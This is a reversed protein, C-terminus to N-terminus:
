TDPSRESVLKAYRCEEASGAREDWWTRMWKADVFCRTSPWNQSQAKRKWKWCWTTSSIYNRFCLSCGSGLLLSCGQLWTRMHRWFFAKSLFLPRKKKQCTHSLVTFSLLCATWGTRRLAASVLLGAEDAQVNGLLNVVWLMFNTTLMGKHWNGMCGSADGYSMLYPTIKSIHTQKRNTKCWAQYNLTLWDWKQELNDLQLCPLVLQIVSAAWSRGFGLHVVHWIDSRFFSAPHGRDHCLYRILSPQKLWPLKVGVTSM